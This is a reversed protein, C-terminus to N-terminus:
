RTSGETDPEADSPTTTMMFGPAPQRGSKNSGERTLTWGSKKSDHVRFKCAANANKHAEKEGSAGRRHAILDYYRHALRDMDSDFVSTAFPAGGDCLAKLKLGGGGLPRSDYAM